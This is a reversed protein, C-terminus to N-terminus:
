YTVTGYAIQEFESGLGTVVVRYVNVMMSPARFMAQNGPSLVKCEEQGNTFQVCVHVDMDSESDSHVTCAQYGGAWADSWMGDRIPGWCQAREEEPIEELMELMKRTAEKAAKITSKSSLEEKSIEAKKKMIKRIRNVTTEIAADPIEEAM